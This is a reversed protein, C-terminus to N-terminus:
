VKISYIKKQLVLSLMLLDHLQNTVHISLTVM